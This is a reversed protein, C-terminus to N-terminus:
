RRQAGPRNTAGRDGRGDDDHQRVAECGRDLQPERGVDERDARRAHLLKLGAAPDAGGRFRVTETLDTWDHDLSQRGGIWRAGDWDPEGRLLGTEWSAPRSWRSVKGDPGWVRVRWFYDEQSTSRGATPSRPATPAPLRAATGCRRVLGDRRRGAGPVGDAAAVLPHWSFEPRSEIGLPSADGNVELDAPRPSSASAVRVAADAGILMTASAVVIWRRARRRRRAPGGDADRKGLAPQTAAKWTGM